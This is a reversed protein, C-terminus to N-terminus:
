EDEKWYFHVNNTREEVWTEVGVEDAAEIVADRLEGDSCSWTGAAMEYEKVEEYKAYCDPCRMTSRPPDQEVREIHTYREGCNTCVCGVKDGRKM